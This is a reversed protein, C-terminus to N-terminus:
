FSTLAGVAIVEFRELQCVFEFGFYFNSVLHPWLGEQDMKLTGSLKPKLYINLPNGSVKRM